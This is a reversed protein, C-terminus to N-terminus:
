QGMSKLLLVLTGERYGAHYRCFIGDSLDCDECDVAHRATLEDAVDEPPTWVVKANM